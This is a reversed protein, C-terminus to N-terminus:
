VMRHSTRARYSWILFFDASPSWWTQNPAVRAVLELCSRGGFAAVDHAEGGRLACQVRNEEARKETQSGCSQRQAEAFADPRAAQGFEYAAEAGNEEEVLEAGQSSVTANRIWTLSMKWRASTLRSFPIKQPTVEMTALQFSTFSIKACM